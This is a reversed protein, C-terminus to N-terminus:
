ITMADLGIANIILDNSYTFSININETGSLKSIQTDIHEIINSEKKGVFLIDFVIISGSEIIASVKGQIVFSCNNNINVFSTYNNDKFATPVATTTKINRLQKTTQHVKDNSLSSSLVIGTNLPNARAGFMYSYNVNSRNYYGASFSFGALAYSYSGVVLSHKGVFNGFGFAHSYDGALKNNKGISRSYGVKRPIDYYSGYTVTTGHNEKELNKEKNIEVIDSLFLKDLLYSYIRENGSKNPHPIDSWEKLVNIRYNSDAIMGDSRLITKPLDLYISNEYSDCFSKVSERYWNEEDTMDWVTNLVILYKNSDRLSTYLLDLKELVIAKSEDTFARTDNYGLAFFLFDYKDHIAQVVYNSLYSTRRGGTALVDITANTIDAYYEIASIDIKGSKVIIKIDNKTDANIDFSNSVKEVILSGSGVDNVTLKLTDNVYVEFEIATPQQMYVIKASNQGAAPSLFSIFSNLTTSAVSYGNLSENSMIDVVWNDINDWGVKHFYGLTSYSSIRGVNETHVLSKLKEIFLLTYSDKKLQSISDGIVAIKDSEKLLSHIKKAIKNTVKENIADANGFLSLAAASSIGISKPKFFNGLSDIINGFAM